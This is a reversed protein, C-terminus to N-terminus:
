ALGLILGLMLFLFFVSQGSHTIIALWSSQFYKAPLALLFVGGIVGSLIGWPQHLHYFGFLIGNAVWDWKGFVGNMKPLLIGRFLFEEGLITNFIAFATFLVLFWWAGVFQMQVAPSGLVSGFAFGAPEAFFPFLTVWISDLTPALIIDLLATLILLLIVWLWLRAQPKNTKPNKPTNLWLRQKITIWYLNGKEYYVIIITLIFQWILGVMLISVRTSVAGMPNSNMDPSITPAIIWGLVAMPITAAAWISLIKFLSYQQDKKFKNKFPVPTAM